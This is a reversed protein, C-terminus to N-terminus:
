PKYQNYNNLWEDNTQESISIPNNVSNISDRTDTSGQYSLGYCNKGTTQDPQFDRNRHNIKIVKDSSKTQSNDTVQGLTTPISDSTILKELEEYELSFLAASNKNLREKEMVDFMFLLGKLKGMYDHFSSLRKPIDIGTKLWFKYFSSRKGVSFHDKPLASGKRGHRTTRKRDLCANFVIYGSEDTLLNIFRLTIGPHNQKDYRGTTYGEYIFLNSKKKNVIAQIFSNKQKDFWGQQVESLQGDIVLRGRDISLKVGKRIVKELPSM